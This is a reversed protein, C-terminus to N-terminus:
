RPGMGRHILLYFAFGISLIAIAFGIVTVITKLTQARERVSETQRREADMLSALDTGLAAAIAQEDKLQFTLWADEIENRWEAPLRALTEGDAPRFGFTKWFPSREQTWLRFVTHNSALIQVRRWFLDRAADAASFDTYGENHLLAYQQSVVFGIAGLFMGNADVVVQFETLRKELEDAPLHMSSWLSRLSALDETTARRVSLPLTYM